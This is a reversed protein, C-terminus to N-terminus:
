FTLIDWPEAEMWQINRALDMPLLDHENNPLIIKQRAKKVAFDGGPRSSINDKKRLKV